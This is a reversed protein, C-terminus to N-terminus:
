TANWAGGTRWAKLIVAESIGFEDDVWGADSTVADGRHPSLRDARCRQRPPGAHAAAIADYGRARLM